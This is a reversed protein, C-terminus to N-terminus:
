CKCFLKYMQLKNRLIMCFKVVKYLVVSNDKNNIVFHVLMHISYFVKYLATKIVCLQLKMTTYVYMDDDETCRRHHYLTM